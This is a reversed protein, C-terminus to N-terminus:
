NVAREMVRHVEMKWSIISFKGFVGIKNKTFYSIKELALYFTVRNLWESVVCVTTKEVVLCHM